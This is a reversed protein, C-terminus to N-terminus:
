LVKIKIPKYAVQLMISSFAIAGGTLIIALVKPIRKYLNYKFNSENLGQFLFLLIVFIAISLLIYIKKKDKM